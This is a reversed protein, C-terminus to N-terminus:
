LATGTPEDERDFLVDDDPEETANGKGEPLERRMWRLLAGTVVLVGAFFLLFLFLKKLM